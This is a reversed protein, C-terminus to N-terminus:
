FGKAVSHNGGCTGEPDFAVEDSYGMAWFLGMPNIFMSSCQCDFWINCDHPDFGNDAPSRGDGGSFQSIGKQYNLWKLLYSPM